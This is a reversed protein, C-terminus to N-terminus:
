FKLSMSGKSYFFNSINLKEIFRNQIFNDTNLLRLEEWLMSLEFTYM